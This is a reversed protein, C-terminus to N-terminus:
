PIAEGLRLSRLEKLSLAPANELAPDAEIEISKHKWGDFNKFPLIRKIPLDNQLLLYAILQVDQVPFDRGYYIVNSTHSISGKRGVPRVHLYFGYASLTDVRGSDRAHLYYRVVVDNRYKKEKMVLKLYNRVMEQFYREDSLSTDRPMYPIHLPESELVEMLSPSSKESADAEQPIMASDAKATFELTDDPVSPSTNGADEKPPMINKQEFIPSYLRMGRYDRKAVKEKEKPVFSHILPFLLLAILWMLLIFLFHPGKM